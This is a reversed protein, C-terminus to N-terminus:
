HGIGVSRERLHGQGRTGSMRRKTKLPLYRPPHPSSKHHKEKYIKSIFHSEPRDTNDSIITKNRKTTLYQGTHIFWM